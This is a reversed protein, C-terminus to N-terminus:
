SSDVWSPREVSTEGHSSLEFSMDVTRENGDVTYTIEYEATHILGESDVVFSANFSSVNEASDVGLFSGAGAIDSSEYVVVTESDRQEVSADYQSANLLFPEIAESATLESAPFTRNSSAVDGYQGNYSSRNYQEGDGYYTESTANTSDTEVAVTRLAQENEFDVRYDGEVLTEGDQTDITYQYEGTYNGQSQIASDYSEVAQQGDTIGDSGFGDAYDFESPDEPAPTGEPEPTGDGGGNGVLGSCGALLVCAVVAVVLTSRSVM